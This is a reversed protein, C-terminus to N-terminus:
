MYSCIDYKPISQTNLISVGIIWHLEHHNSWWCWRVWPEMPSLNKQAQYPNSEDKYGLESSLMDKRKKKMQCSHEELFSLYRFARSFEFQFIYSTIQSDKLSILDDHSLFVLLIFWTFFCVCMSDVLIEQANHIGRTKGRGNTKQAIKIARGAFKVEGLSVNSAGDGRGKTHHRCSIPWSWCSDVVMPVWLRRKNHKYGVRLPIYYM